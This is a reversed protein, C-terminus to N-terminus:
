DRRPPLSSRAVNYATGPFLVEVLVQLGCTLSYKLIGATGVTFGKKKKQTHIAPM